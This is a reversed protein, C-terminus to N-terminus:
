LRISLLIRAFCNFCSSVSSLFGCKTWVRRIRSKILDKTSRQDGRVIGRVIHGSAPGCVLALTACIEM